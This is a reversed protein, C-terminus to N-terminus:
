VNFYLCFFKLSTFAIFIKARRDFLTNIVKTESHEFTVDIQELKVNPLGDAVSVDKELTKVSDKNIETAM